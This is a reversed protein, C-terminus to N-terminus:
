DTEDQQPTQREFSKKLSQYDDLSNYVGFVSMDFLRVAARFSRLPDDDYVIIKKRPLDKKKRELEELPINIAGFIHDEEYSTQMRTDVFAILEGNIIKEEIQEANLSTVKVLDQNSVPNGKSILNYDDQAYKVIGGKLYKVKLGESKLHDTFIRGEPSDERDIIIVTKRQDILHIDQNITSLPINISSEIHKLDYEVPQRIDVLQFADSDIAKYTENSSAFDVEVAEEKKSKQEIKARIDENEKQKIHNKYM